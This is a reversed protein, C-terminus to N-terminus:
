GLPLFFARSKVRLRRRNPKTVQQDDSEARLEFPRGKFKFVLRNAVEARDPGGAVDVENPCRDPQEIVRGSIADGIAKGTKGAKRKRPRGILAKGFQGSDREDM